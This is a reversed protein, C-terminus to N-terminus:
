KKPKQEYPYEQVVEDNKLSSDQNNVINVSQRKKNREELKKRTNKDSFRIILIIAIIVIGWILIYPIFIILNIFFERIGSIVNLTSRRFGTSIRDFASEEVDPTLEVVESINIVVTSYDVQNDYTRLQSEMSEIQYRVESLRSEITIIDEVNEATNLLELLRTQEELLMKKHSEMDVYTLTVDSVSESRNTINASEGVKNIFTDLSAAPIRATITANRKNDSYMEGNYVNMSEVYGSLNKIEKDLNVMLADFKQSEVDLTVNKILKRNTNSANETMGTDSAATAESTDYANMQAEEMGAKAPSADYDGESQSAGKSGGGCACLMIICYLVTLILVGKKRM